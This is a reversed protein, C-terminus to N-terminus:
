DLNIFDTTLDFDLNSKNYGHQARILRKLEKRMASHRANIGLVKKEQAKRNKIPLKLYEKEDHLMQRGIETERKLIQIRYMNLKDNTKTTVPNLAIGLLQKIAKKQKKDMIKM